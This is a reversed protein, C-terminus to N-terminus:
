TVTVKVSFAFDFKIISIDVFDILPRAKMQNPDASEILYLCGAIVAYRSSIPPMDGALHEFNPPRFILGRPSRSICNYLM